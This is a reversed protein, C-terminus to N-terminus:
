RINKERMSIRRWNRFDSPVRAPIISDHCLVANGYRVRSSGTGCHGDERYRASGDSSAATATYLPDPSMGDEDRATYVKITRIIEEKAEQINM